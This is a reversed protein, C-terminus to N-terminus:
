LDDWTTFTVDDNVTENTDNSSLDKENIFQSTIDGKSLLCRIEDIHYFYLIDCKNDQFDRKSVLVLSGIGPKVNRNIKGRAIGLRKVNDYCEVDYRGGGHIKTIKAYEQDDVKIIDEYKFSYQTPQMNKRAKGKTKNGGSNNKVM